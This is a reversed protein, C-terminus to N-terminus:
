ATRALSGGRRREIIREVRGALTRYREDWTYGSRVLARGAEGLQRAYGADDILRSLSDALAPVDGFSVLLGTEGDTVVEPVGGASAAVVPKGNAWAELYVIGFSDTRSPMAFVDLADYFDPVDGPAIPGLLRLWAKERWGEDLFSEFEPTASGALLLSIPMQRARNLRDVARVLDCTGKNPDLAGLQGVVPESCLGLRSRYRVGDGGTVDEHEIAMPLTMLRERPIGWGAVAETALPTPSVVLDAEALLRVQHPRTYTRNV